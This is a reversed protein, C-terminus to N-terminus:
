SIAAKATLLCVRDTANGNIELDALQDVNGAEQHRCEQRLGNEGSARDHAALHVTARRIPETAVVTAVTIRNRADHPPPPPPPSSTRVSDTSSTPLIM